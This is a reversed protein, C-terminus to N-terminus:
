DENKTKRVAASVRGSVLLKKWGSWDPGSDPVLRKIDEREEQTLYRGMRLPYKKQIESLPIGAGCSECGNGNFHVFEHGAHGCTPCKLYGTAKDLQLIYTM